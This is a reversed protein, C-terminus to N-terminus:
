LWHGRGACKRCTRIIFQHDQAGAGLELWHERQRAKPIMPPPQTVGESSLAIAQADLQLHINVMDNTTAGITVVGQKSLKALIDNQQQRSIGARRYFRKEDVVVSGQRAGVLEMVVALMVAEQLGYRAALEPVFPLPLSMTM